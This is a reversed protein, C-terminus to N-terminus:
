LVVNECFVVVWQISFCGVGVVGVFIYHKAKLSGWINENPVARVLFEWSSFRSFIFVFM